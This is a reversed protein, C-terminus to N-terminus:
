AVGREPGLYERRFQHHNRAAEPSGLVHTTGAVMWIVEDAVALLDEVEHGTVIVAVGAAAHERLDSSVRGRDLPSLGAFPEDALLCRPGRLRALALEARREEGGSIQVTRQELLHHIGEARAAEDVSGGFADAYLELQARLNLRRSLLGRDPVFFLGRRALDPLSPAVVQDEWRTLGHTARILGLGARILTSKGCGNRGLLVTIQGATGWLSGSHLVQRRGFSKGISDFTLLAPSM